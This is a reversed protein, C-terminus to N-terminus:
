KDDPDVIYYEKPNNDDFHTLYVEEKVEYTEPDVFIASINAKLAIDKKRNLMWNWESMDTTVFSIKRKPDPSLLALDRIQADFIFVDVSEYEDDPDPDDVFLCNFWWDSYDDLVIAIEADHIDGNEISTYEEHMMAEDPTIYHIKKDALASFIAGKCISSFARIKKAKEGRKVPDNEEILMYKMYVHAREMRAPRNTRYEELWKKKEETFTTNYDARQYGAAVMLQEMTIGNQPHSEPDALKQLIAASPLYKKNVIGSLYSAAVGTDAAAQRKSRNGILKEVYEAVREIQRRKEDEKSIEIETRNM